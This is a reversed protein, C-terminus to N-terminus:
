DALRIAKISQVSKVWRDAMLDQPNMLFYKGGSKLITENEHTALMMTRSRHSYFIEGYSYVARYDDPASVLFVTNMDFTMGSQNLIDTFLFGSYAHSGHYGKGEGVTHTTARAPDFSSPKLDKVLYSIKNENIISFESSYLKKSRDAKGDIGIQFVKIETIPELCRDSCADDTIVLKPFIVTRHYRDMVPQYVSPEHCTSCSKHPLIPTADYAIFVSGPNQYFVEGWSLAIQRTRTKVAIAMDVQKKFKTNDKKIGATELLTRLPVGRFYFVGNFQKDSTIENRQVIISQFQKLDDLNLTMEHEVSGTIKLVTKSTDAFVPACFIVILFFIGYPLFRHTIKM